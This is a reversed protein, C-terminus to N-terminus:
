GCRRLFVRDERYDAEQLEHCDGKLDYLLEKTAYIAIGMFIWAITLM